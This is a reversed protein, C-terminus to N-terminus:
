KLAYEEGAYKAELRLYEEVLETGPLGQADLEAAFQDWVPRDAEVWRALDEPPLEVYELGFEQFAPERLDRDTRLMAMDWVDVYEDSTEEIMRQVDAPLSNWTDLNMAFGWVGPRENANTVYRLPEGWGFDFLTFYPVAFGDAVGTEFAMYTEEPMLSMPTRGLAEARLADWKGMVVMKAGQNDEFKRIPKRETTMSNNPFTAYKGLIKTDSYTAQMEPFAKHLEWHLRSARYCFVNYSNFATIEDLPFKGPVMTPNFHGIEVTGKMIADYVDPLAVLEGAWHAEVKVAGGSREEIEAFLPGYLETDWLGGLPDHHTFVLTIPEVPPPTPPPTPESPPPTPPPTPEEKTCAAMSATLVILLMLSISVILPLIKRSQKGKL